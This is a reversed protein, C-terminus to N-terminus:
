GTSGLYEIALQRKYEGELADDYAHLVKEASVGVTEAYSRIFARVYFHMLFRTIKLAM